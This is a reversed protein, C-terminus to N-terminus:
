VCISIVIESMQHVSISVCIYVNKWRLIKSLNGKLPYDRIEGFEMFFNNVINAGFENQNVQNM